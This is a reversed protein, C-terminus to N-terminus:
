SWNIQIRVSVNRIFAKISHQLFFLVLVGSVIFFVTEETLVLCKSVGLLDNTLTNRTREIVIVLFPELKMDIRQYKM